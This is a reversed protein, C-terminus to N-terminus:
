LYESIGSDIARQAYGFYSYGSIIIIRLAPMDKKLLKSLELGDMFPM